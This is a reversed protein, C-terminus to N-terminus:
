HRKQECFLFLKTCFLSLIPALLLASTGTGHATALSPNRAAHGATSGAEGAHLGIQIMHLALGVNLIRSGSWQMSRMSLWGARFNM